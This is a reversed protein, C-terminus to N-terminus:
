AYNGESARRQGRHRAADPVPAIKVYNCRRRSGCSRTRRGASHCQRMRTDQAELRVLSEEKMVIDAEIYRHTTTTSEHGLWLVIM